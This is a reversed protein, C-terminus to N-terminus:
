KMGRRLGSAAANTRNGAGDTKYRRHNRKTDVLEERSITSSNQESHNLWGREDNIVCTV